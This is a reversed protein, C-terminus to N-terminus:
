GLWAPWSMLHRVFGTSWHRPPQDPIPLLDPDGVIDGLALHHRFHAERYGSLSAFLLPAVLARAMFDNLRKDRWLNRHGADHLINGLARQRNAIVVVALPVLWHSLAVVAHVSCLIIAWDIVADSLPRIPNLRLLACHAGGGGRLQSRLEAVDALVESHSEM